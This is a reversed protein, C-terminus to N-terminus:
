WRRQIPGDGRARRSRLTQLLRHILGGVVATFVIRVFLGRDLLGVTERILIRNLLAMTAENVLVAGALSMAFTSSGRLVIRTNLLAILYGSLTLSFAHLGFISLSFSDQVLGAVVGVVITGALNGGSAFYVVLIIYPDLYALAGPLFTDLLSHALVVIVLGATFGLWKM